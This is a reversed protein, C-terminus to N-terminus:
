QPTLIRLIPCTTYLKQALQRLIAVIAKSKKVECIYIYVRLTWCNRFLYQIIHGYVTYGAKPKDRANVFM